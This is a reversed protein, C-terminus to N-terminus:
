KKVAPEILALRRRIEQEENPFAKRMAQLEKAAEALKGQRAYADAIWYRLSTESPRQVALHRMLVIGRDSENARTLFNAYRLLTGFDDKRDAAVKEWLALGQEPFGAALQADALEEIVQLDSPAAQLAQSYM